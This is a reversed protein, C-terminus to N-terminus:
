PATAQVWSSTLTATTVRRTSVPRPMTCRPALIRLSWSVMKMMPISGLGVLDCAGDHDPPKEEARYVDGSPHPFTHGCCKRPPIAALLRWKKTIRANAAVGDVLENTASFIPPSLVWGMSLELVREVAHLCRYRLYPATLGGNGGLPAGFEDVAREVRCGLCPQLMDFPGRGRYVAELDDLPDCAHVRGLMPGALECAPPRVRAAM